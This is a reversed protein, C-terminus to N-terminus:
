KLVVIKGFGEARDDDGEIASVLRGSASVKYIYVGNAIRDGRSDTMNWRKSVNYGEHTSENRMTKILRGALSYVEIRVDSVQESLYYSFETETTAPNPYNAIGSIVLKEFEGVAISYVRLSSNNASDWAKVKM